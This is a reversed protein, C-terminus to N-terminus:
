SAPADAGKAIPTSTYEANLRVNKKGAELISQVQSKIQSGTRFSHLKEQAIRVANANAIPEINTERISNVRIPGEDRNIFVTGPPLSVIKEAADADITLADIVGVTRSSAIHRQALLAQVDAM